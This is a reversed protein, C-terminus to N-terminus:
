RTRSPTSLGSTNQADLASRGPRRRGSDACDWGSATRPARLPSGVDGLHPRGVRAGDPAPGGCLAGTRAPIRPSGKVPIERGPLRTRALGPLPLRADPHPGPHLGRPVPHAGPRTGSGGPLGDWCCSGPSGRLGASRPRRAGPGPGLPCPPRPAPSIGPFDRGPGLMRLFDRSRSVSLVTVSPWLAQAPPQTGRQPRLICPAKRM